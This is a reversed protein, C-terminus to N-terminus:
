KKDDTPEEPEDPNQDIPKWGEQKAMAEIKMRNELGHTEAQNVLDKIILRLTEVAKAKRELRESQQPQGHNDRQNKANQSDMWHQVQLPIDLTALLSAPTGDATKRGVMNMLGAIENFVNSRNNADKAFGATSGYMMHSHQLSELFYALMEIPEVGKQQCHKQIVLFPHEM